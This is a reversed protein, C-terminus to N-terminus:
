INMDWSNEKESKEIQSSYMTPSNSQLLKTQQINVPEHGLPSSM